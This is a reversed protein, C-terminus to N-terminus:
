CQARDWRSVCGVVKRQWGAWVVNFNCRAASIALSINRTSHLTRLWKGLSTPLSPCARLTTIFRLRRKISPPWFVICLRRTSGYTINLRKVRIGAREFGLTAQELPQSRGSIVVSAPGNVAAISVHAEYGALGALAREESAALAVMGGPDGLEQTLRGRAAVLLSADAVSMVGALTCAVIEGMSHGVVIQPEIGWSQWVRALGYQFAYLAPQVLASQSLEGHENRFIDEIPTAIAGALAADVEAVAARFVESHALLSLGMGTREGGQGAFLFAVRPKRAEVVGRFFASDQDSDGQALLSLEEILREKSDVRIAARHAFISRGTSLTFAVDQLPLTPNERLRDALQAAM